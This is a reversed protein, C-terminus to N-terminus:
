YGLGPQGGMCRPCRRIHIDCGNAGYEAGCRGCMLVYVKQGPLNGEFGAARLVRQQNANVYGVQTTDREAITRPRAPLPPLRGPAFPAPTTSKALAVLHSVFKRRGQLDFHVTTHQDDVDLVTGTGFTQHEVRDGAKWASM